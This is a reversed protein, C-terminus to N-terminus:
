PLKHLYNFLGDLQQHNSVGHRENHRRQSARDFLSLLTVPSTRAIPTRLANGSIVNFQNSRVCHIIYFCSDVSICDAKLLSEYVICVVLRGMLYDSTIWVNRKWIFGRWQDIVSRYYSRGNDDFDTGINSSLFYVWYRSKQDTINLMNLREMIQCQHLLLPHKTGRHNAPPILNPFLFYGVVEMIYRM